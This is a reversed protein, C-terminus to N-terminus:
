PSKKALGRALAEMEAETLRGRSEVWWTLEGGGLMLYYRAPQTRKEGGASTYTREPVTFALAIKGGIVTRVPEQLGPGESWDEFALVLEGFSATLYVGPSEFEGADEFGEAAIGAVAGEATLLRSYTFDFSRMAAPLASALDFGLLAAADEASIPESTVGGVALSAHSSFSAMENFILPEQRGERAFFVAGAFVLCLCAALGWKWLSRRRKSAYGAAEEVYGTGIEGLAESFALATM